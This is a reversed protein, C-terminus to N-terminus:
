QENKLKELCMEAANQEAKRRSTGKGTASLSKEIVKCEITFTQEHQKGQTAVLEYLPLSLKHSQLYEQLQTKADKLSKMDIIKNLRSEFWQVVTQKCITIDSDLYIAGIIAEVADSLISPRRFGGSRLEGTGMRLYESLNFEMAIDALGERNVLAARLRSLDGEKANQRQQFLLEAVVFNVIADGLFEMRENNKNDLSRHTLAQKVLAENKFTYGITSYLESLKAM